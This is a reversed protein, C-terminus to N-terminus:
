QFLVEDKLSYLIALVESRTTPDIARADLVALVDDVAAVLERENLNMGKHAARMDRGEYQAPGGAGMNFFDSVLLKLKEMDVELFRTKILANVRHREVVDASIAAIGEAGGLREFLSQNQTTQTM